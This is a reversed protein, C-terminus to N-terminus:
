RGEVQALAVEAQPLWLTMAMSQYMEIAAFLEASSSLSLTTSCRM